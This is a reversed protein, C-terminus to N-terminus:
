HGPSARDSVVETAFGNCDDAGLADASFEAAQADTFKKGALARVQQLFSTMVSCGATADPVAAYTEALTLKDTLSTGIKPITAVKAKLM